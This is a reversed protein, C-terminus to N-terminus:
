GPKRRDPFELAGRWQDVDEAPSQGKVSLGDPLNGTSQSDAAVRGTRIVDDGPLHAVKQIEIVDGASHGAPAVVHDIVDKDVSAGALLDAGATVAMRRAIGCGGDNGRAERSRIWDSGAIRLLFADGSTPHQSVSAESLAVM